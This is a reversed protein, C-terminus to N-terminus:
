NSYKTIDKMKNIVYMDFVVFKIIFKNNLNFSYYTSSNKFKIVYHKMNRM